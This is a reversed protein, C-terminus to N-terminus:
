SLPILQSLKRVLVGAETDPYVSIIYLISIDALQAIRMSPAVVSVALWGGGKIGSPIVLMPALLLLRSEHLYIYVVVPSHSLSPPCNPQWRWEKGTLHHVCVSGTNKFTYPAGSDIGLFSNRRDETGLRWLSKLFELESTYHLAMSVCLVYMSLTGCHIDRGTPISVRGVGREGALTSHGEGRFWLPAIKGAPSPNPSDWNRRSSFFSIVRGVRHM